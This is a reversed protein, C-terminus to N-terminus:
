FANANNNCHITAFNFAELYSEEDKQLLNDMEDDTYEKSLMKVTCTCYQKGRDAGLSKISDPYCGSYIEKEYVESMAHSNAMKFVFALTWLISITLLIKALIKIM